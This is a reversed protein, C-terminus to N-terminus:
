CTPRTPADGVERALDRIKKRIEDYYVERKERADSGLLEPPVPAHIFSDYLEEYLSGIQFGSASAWGPNGLKITDIYQRQSALLMRAKEDLDASM